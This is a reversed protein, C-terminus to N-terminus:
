KSRSILKSRIGGAFWRGRVSGASQLRELSRLYEYRYMQVIYLMKSRFVPHPRSLGQEWRYVSYCDRRDSNVYIGLLAGLDARSWGLARRLAKIEDPQASFIDNQIPQLMRNRPPIKRIM